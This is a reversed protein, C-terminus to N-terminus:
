FVSLYKPQERSPHLPTLYLKEHRQSTVLKMVSRFSFSSRYDPLHLCDHIFSTLPRGDLQQVGAKCPQRFKYVYVLHLALVHAIQQISEFSAPLAAKLTTAVHM